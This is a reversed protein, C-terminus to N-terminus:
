KTWRTNMIKPLCKNECTVLNFTMTQTPIWSEFGYTLVPLYYMLLLSDLNTYPQETGTIAM